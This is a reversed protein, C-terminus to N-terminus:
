FIWKLRVFFNIYISGLGDIQDVIRSMLIILVNTKLGGITWTCFLFEVLYILIMKRGNFLCRLHRGVGKAKLYYCLSRNKIYILHVKFSFAIILLMVYNNFWNNFSFLEQNM